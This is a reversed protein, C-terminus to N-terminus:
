IKIILETYMQRFIINKKKKLFSSGLGYRMNLFKDM